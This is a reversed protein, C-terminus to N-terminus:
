SQKGALYMIVFGAAAIIIGALLLGSSPLVTVGLAVLIAGVLFAGAGIYGLNDM